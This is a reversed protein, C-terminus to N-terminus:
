LKRLLIENTIKTRFDEDMGEYAKKISDIRLHLCPVCIKTSNGVPLDYYPINKLKIGCSKCVYRSTTVQKLAMGTCYNVHHCWSIKYKSPFNPTAVDIEIVSCKSLFTEADIYEDCRKINHNIQYSIYNTNNSNTQGIQSTKLAKISKQYNSIKNLINGMANKIWKSPIAHNRYHKAEDIDETTALITDRWGTTIPRPVDKIYLKDSKIAYCKM